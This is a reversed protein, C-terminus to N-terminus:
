WLWYLVVKGIDVWYYDGVLYKRFQNPNAKYKPDDPNATKLDKIRIAEERISNLFVIQAVKGLSELKNSIKEMNFVSNRPNNSSRATGRM